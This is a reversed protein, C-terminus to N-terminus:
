KGVGVLLRKSAIAAPPPEGGLGTTGSVSHFHTVAKLSTPATHTHSSGMVCVKALLNGGSSITHTHSGGANTNFSFTHSHSEPTEGSNAYGTNAAPLTHTHSFATSGTVGANITHTHMDELFCAECGHMGSSSSWQHFHSEGANDMSVLTIAHVHNYWPSGLNAAGFSIILAHSHAAIGYETKTGVPHTHSSAGAYGCNTSGSTGSHTHSKTGTDGEWDPHNHSHHKHSAEKTRIIRPLHTHLNHEKDLWIVDGM